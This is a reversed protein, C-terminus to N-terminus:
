AATEKPNVGAAERVADPLQGRYKRVLRKALAAQKPSLSARTALDKGLRADFKNFGHGDLAMAGDCMGAIMQVATTIALIEAATLKEAEKEIASRSTNETAPREAKPMPLVVIRDDVPPHKSDLAADIVEQKDVLRRAMVADLSGELVIHQVLVNDHQGLRHCRDEAQSITGPVWDLEAFIVHSAATLTLGVGAAQTQGVFIQVRPDDQFAKVRAHRKEVSVSGSVQVAKSGFEEMLADIVDIHHAFVVVKHDPDEETAIKIHDIVAPLKALATAHRVRSMETFAAGQGQRLAKVAAKYEEPDDSAKALEVALALDTLRAKSREWAAKENAVTAAAGNTPLEIVQRTKPPLEKLVESKLRRIMLTSRLRDQLEDLHTAGDFNWGFREQVAGCYRKHYTWFDGWTEFDLYKVLPFLEKPRNSIPTGTLFHKKRPKIPAIEHPQEPLKKGLRKAKSLKQRWANMHKATPKWGYIQKSRIAGVNKIKHAEDVVLLDWTVSRIETEYKKLIDYNIIVLHRQKDLGKVPKTPFFGPGDKVGMVDIHWDDMLWKEAEDRWNLKLSAPCIVLVRRLSRDFNMTGLVQITKGLGMVDGFLASDRDMAYAVGAKQYPKYKLGTPCPIDLDADTARSKEREVRASEKAKELMTRAGPDAYEILRAAKLPDTTYWVRAGHRDWIFNAEQCHHREDYHSIAEFRKRTAHWIIKM